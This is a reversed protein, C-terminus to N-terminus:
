LCDYDFSVSLVIRLSVSLLILLQIALFIPCMVKGNIINDISMLTYEENGCDAELGNQASATSDLLPTCGTPLCRLHM